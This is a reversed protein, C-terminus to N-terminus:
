AREVGPLAAPLPEGHSLHNFIAEWIMGSTQLSHYRLAYSRCAEGIVMRVDGDEVLARLREEITAVSADVIPCERLAGNERRSGLWALNSVVPVGASMGEIAALGYGGVLQDVVIDAGRVGERVDDNPRGEYLDLDVPLGDARLADVASVIADTAKIARHNSSHAIRVRDSTVDLPRPAPAWLDCDIALQTPWFVDARPVYGVQLNRVVFDARRALHEIRRVRDRVDSALMPYEAVMANEFPGLTGPVAVDSGYPSVVVHVRALRLLPFEARWLPTHALFGGDFFTSIVDANRLVWAFATYPRLVRLLSATPAFDTILRDFDSRRSIAMPPWVVTTSELGRRKCADSWYKITPIPTPGWIIRPRRRRRALRARVALAVFLPTAALAAVAHM